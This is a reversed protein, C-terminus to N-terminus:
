FRASKTLSYVRYLEEYAHFTHEEAHRRGIELSAQGFRAALESHNLIKQLAAAFASPDGPPVLYGNADSEVLEPLAAANAAVIPL